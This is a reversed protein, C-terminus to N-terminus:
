WYAEKGMTSPEVSVSTKGTRKREWRQHSGNVPTKDTRKGEKVLVSEKGM